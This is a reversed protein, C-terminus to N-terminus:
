LMKTYKMFLSNVIESGYSGDEFGLVLTCIERSEVMADITEWDVEYDILLLIVGVIMDCVECSGM